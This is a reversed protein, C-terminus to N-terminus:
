EPEEGIWDGDEYEKAIFDFDSTCTAIIQYQSTQVNIYYQIIEGDNEISQYQVLTLLRGDSTRGAFVQTYPNLPQGPKVTIRIYIGYLWAQTMDVIKSQQYFNLSGVAIAHSTKLDRLEQRFYALNRSFLSESM